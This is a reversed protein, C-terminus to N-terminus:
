RSCHSFREFRVLSPDLKAVIGESDEIPTIPDEAGALVLTPCQIRHIEPLLSM